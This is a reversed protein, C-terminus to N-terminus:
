KLILYNQIVPPLPFNKIKNLIYDPPIINPDLQYINNLIIYLIMNLNFENFSSKSISIVSDEYEDIHPKYGDIIKHYIYIQNFNINSKFKTEKNFLICIIWKHYDKISEEYNELYYKNITNAIDILLKEKLSSPTELPIQSITPPHYHFKIM